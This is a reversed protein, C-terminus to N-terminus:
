KPSEQKDVTYIVQKPRMNYSVLEISNDQQKKRRRKTDALDRMLEWVDMVTAALHAAWFYVSAVEFGFHEVLMGAGAAGVFAGFFYSSSWM